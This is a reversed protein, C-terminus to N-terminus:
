ALAAEQVSEPDGTMRQRVLLAQRVAHVDHVRLVEVGHDAAHLCAAITGGLREDPPSGDMAALFSKRAPGLVLPAGARFLEDIRRLLEYSHSASKTFGLGPDFLVRNRALGAAAARARAQELEELVDAAVDGYSREPWRSFGPMHTMSGRCHTIILWGDHAATVRALDPDTLCSVDNVIRAGRALAHDAVEPLTTDISVCVNKSSAAEVAHSVRAIQEGASIPTAGPRTSEGGIDVISAGEAILEDIRRKAADADLYSGGDYFSDPTLNLVGM